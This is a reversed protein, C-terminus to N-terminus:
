RDKIASENREGSEETAAESICGPSIRTKGQFLGKLKTPNSTMM